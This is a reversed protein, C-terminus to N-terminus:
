SKLYSIRVYDYWVEANAGAGLGIRKGSIPIYKLASKFHENIFVYIKDSKKRITIKNFSGDKKFHTSYRKKILKQNNAVDFALYSIDGHISCYLYCSYNMSDRAWFLVSATWNRKPASIIKASYEIEFDRSFDINPNVGYAYINKPATNKYKFLGDAIIAYINKEETSDNDTLGDNPDDNETSDNDTLWGNHDDNFHDEWVVTKNKYFYNRPNVSSSDGASAYHSWCSSLLLLLITIKHSLQKM